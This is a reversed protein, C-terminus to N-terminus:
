EREQQLLTMMELEAIRQAAARVMDELEAIRAAQADYAALLPRCDNDVEEQESVPERWGNDEAELTRTHKILTNLQERFEERTPIKTM